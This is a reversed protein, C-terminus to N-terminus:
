AGVNLTALAVAATSLAIWAAYALVSERGRVWAWAACLAMGTPFAFGIVSLICARFLDSGAVAAGHRPGIVGFAMWMAEAALLIAGTALWVRRESADPCGSPRRSHHAPRGVVASM